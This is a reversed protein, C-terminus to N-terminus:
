PKDTLLADDPESGTLGFVNGDDLFPGLSMSQPAQLYCILFIVVQNPEEISITLFSMLAPIFTFINEALGVQPLGRM